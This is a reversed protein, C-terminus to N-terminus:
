RKGKKLNMVNDQVGRPQLTENILSAVFQFYFPLQGDELWEAVQATKRQDQKTSIAAAIVSCVFAVSPAEINMSISRGTEVEIRLLDVIGLHAEYEIERITIRM